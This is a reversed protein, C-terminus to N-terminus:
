RVREKADRRGIEPCRQSALRRLFGKRCFGKARAPRSFRARVNVGFMQSKLPVTSGCSIDYGVPFFSCYPTVGACSDAHTRGCTGDSGGQLAIKGRCRINVPQGGSSRNVTIAARMSYNGRAAGFLRCTKNEALQNGSAVRALARM